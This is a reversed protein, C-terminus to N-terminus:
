PKIGTGGCRRCRVIKDGKKLTGKGECNKCKQKKQETDDLADVALQRSATSFGRLILGIAALLGFDNKKLDFRRSSQLSIPASAVYFQVSGIGEEIRQKHSSHRSRHLNEAAPLSSRVV